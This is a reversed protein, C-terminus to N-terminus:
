NQLRRLWKTSTKLALIMGLVMNKNYHDEIQLREKIHIIDSKLVTVLSFVHRTLFYMGAWNFSGLRGNCKPCLLKGDVTGELLPLMWTVPEIFVSTCQTNNKPDVKHLDQKQWKFSTQGSGPEHALLSNTDFLLLRCKRCKYSKHASSSTDKLEKIVSSLLDKSGYQQSILNFVSQLQNALLKLRYEKYAPNTKDVTNGMAEYLQLQVVFGDNPSFVFLFFSGVVAFCLQWKFSTQGSGPEHALVSNTDFLLLRCKRCKYSKHASSSTDKLEKIVSSLLDKSGYQQSQLQNALLKLRYEKYAPNTKDVTNGMAEYLQLQVVFGDNPCHVLVNEKKDIGDTIFESCDDFFSLLDTDHEDLCQVHKLIILDENELRLPELDVTLIRTKEESPRTNALAIADARSGIYLNEKVFSM